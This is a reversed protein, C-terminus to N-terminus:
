ADAATFTLTVDLTDNDDLSKDGASFAGVSFLVGSTGTNVGALGAGGVTTSDSDITFTAPSASNDLSQSAAGGDVFAVRNTEDYATVETWGGHSALTDGAAVTPTGDTLLVFWTTDQTGGSLVVDLVHNLGENTIINDITDRWKERGANDRCVIEYRGDVGLGQLVASRIAAENDLKVHLRTHISHKSEM